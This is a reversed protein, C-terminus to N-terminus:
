LQITKILQYAQAQKPTPSTALLFTSESLPAGPRKCTNRVITGLHNLLTRFSHVTSGDQLKKTQAKKSAAESRPAPAVPDRSVKSARLEEDSFLLPRWAEKIHWQVYYALMCLFIHARVRNELYHRIPRVELDMTKFSRFAREVESLAKYSRVTDEASSQESPLSTRIVYLGDTASEAKVSEENISFEFSNEALKLIFHKGVKHKNLVKGVRIGIKDKGSLKGLGIGLALKELRASLTKMRSKNAEIRRRSQEELEPSASGQAEAIMAAEDVEFSLSGDEVILKYYKRVRYGSLIKNALAEIQEKGHVRNVQTMQRIKQLDKSTAELLSQRKMHRRKALEPNRCVILREKPYDPHEIEILNNEHFLDMQIAGLSVLKAISGSRLATIWEMGEMQELEHIQKETVMGRDGVLVFRKIGFEKRIKEVEPMLTKSDATNGEFVSVSIPIGNRNTLLGYNVQLKGKKGDRNHGYSALPCAQGEFYSSSLDFLAQGDEQLHRKALKKEISKQHALLWDMAKYLEDEEADSVGMLEPLTTDHWSRSMALKSQPDLLMAAVMAMVIDRERSKRSALLGDFELQKMASLVAEVGGHAKSGGPVIEFIEEVPGLKEGKLIRRISEIQEAPLSSLNALTRKGVRKGERYTERLLVTPTSDRNPIVHIHM